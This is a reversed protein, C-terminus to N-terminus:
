FKILKNNNNNDNAMKKQQSFYCFFCGISYVSM